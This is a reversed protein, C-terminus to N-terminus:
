VQLNFSPFNPTLLTLFKGCHAYVFNDGSEIGFARLYSLNHM